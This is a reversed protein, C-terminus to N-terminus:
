HSSGVRRNEAIHSRGPRQEVVDRVVTSRRTPFVAQHTTWRRYVTTGGSFGAPLDPNPDARFAPRGMAGNQAPAPPWAGDPAPSRSRRRGAPVHGDAPPRSPQVRTRGELRRRRHGWDPPNRGHRHGIARFKRPPAMAQAMPLRDAVCQSRRSTLATARLVVPIVRRTNQHGIHFISVMKRFLPM